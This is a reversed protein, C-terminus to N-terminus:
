ADSEKIFLYEEQTGRSVSDNGKVVSTVTDKAMTTMKDSVTWNLIRDWPFQKYIETDYGSLAVFGKTNFIRECMELHDKKSMGHDYVNHGYYPPDLYFVSTYSDYDSLCHRWDLNEIQVTLFRNAIDQFLDLNEQIKRWMMGRGKVVRGFYRGRGAFSSQVSVYWRAAREIDDTCDKWTDRSWMFEERSHPSLGIREILQQRLDNDRVVRFFCTVGSHRDNYVDLKSEGRNLTIVGSGGFVDVFTDLYPLEPLIHSLSESKSGVYSFPIRKYDERYDENSDDLSQYIALLEDSTM